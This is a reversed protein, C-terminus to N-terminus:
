NGANAVKPFILKIRVETKKKDEETTAVALMSVAVMQAQLAEYKARLEALEGLQGKLTEYKM